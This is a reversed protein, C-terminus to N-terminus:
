GRKAKTKGRVACGDIKGGKACGKAKIKGGKARMDGLGTPPVEDFSPARVRSLPGTYVPKPNQMMRRGTPTLMSPEPGASPKAADRMMRRGAPTLMSPERSKSARAKPEERKPPRAAATRRIAPTERRQPTPTERRPAPTAARRQPAPTAARRTPASPKLSPMPTKLDDRASPRVLPTDDMRSALAQSVDRAAVSRGKTRRAESLASESAREAARTATRDDGRWKALDDKADAMRQEYKARAVNANKGARLAKQYDSEIDATKRDFRAQTRGGDAFKKMKRSM